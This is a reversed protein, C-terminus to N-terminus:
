YFDAPNLPEGNRRVEYHLHSGSSQGTNGVRGIAAGQNVKSGAEVGIEDLHAYFTQYGGEHEVVVLKGWGKDSEAKIVVGDGSAYVPTGTPAAVDIGQHVTEKRTIPHLAHENYGWTIKDRFKEALPFQSPIGSGHLNVVAQSILGSGDPNITSVALSRESPSHFLIIVLAMAPLIGLYRWKKSTGSRHNTLMIIRKKITSSKFNSAPVPSYRRVTEAKLCELYERLSYQNGRAYHDALYEHNDRVYRFLVYVFPNFWLLAAVLDMFLLDLSHLQVAHAMEHRLVPGLHNEYVFRDLYICRFLTFSGTQQDQVYVRVRGDRIVPLGGASLGLKRLRLASRILLTLAVAIYLSLLLSGASWSIAIESLVARTTALHDMYIWDTGGLEAVADFSNKWQLRFLPLILSLVISGILYFRNWQFFTLKRFAVRYLTWFIVIALNVKIMYNMMNM